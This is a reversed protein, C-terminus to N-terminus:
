ERFLFFCFMRGGVKTEQQTARVVKETIITQVMAQSAAPMAAANLHEYQMQATDEPLDMDTDMTEIPLYIHIVQCTYLHIFTHIHM